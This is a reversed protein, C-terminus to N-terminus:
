GTEILRNLVVFINFYFFYFFFGEWCCTDRGNCLLNVRDKRTVIVMLFFLSGLNFDVIQMILCLAYLDIKSVPVLLRLM